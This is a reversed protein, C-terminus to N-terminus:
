YFRTMDSSVTGVQNLYQKGMLSGYGSESTSKEKLRCFKDPITGVYNCYDSGTKYNYMKGTIYCNFSAGFSLM